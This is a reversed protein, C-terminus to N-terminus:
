KQVAETTMPQPTRRYPAKGVREFESIVQAGFLLL